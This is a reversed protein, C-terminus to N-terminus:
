MKTAGKAGYYGCSITELEKDDLATLRILNKTKGTNFDSVLKNRYFSSCDPVLLKELDPFHRQLREDFTDWDITPYGQAKWENEASLQTHSACFRRQERIRQKPQAEFRMLMEPDVEAKCLPCLAKRPPSPERDGILADAFRAFDEAYSSPTSVNSQASSLSSDEDDLFLHKSSATGMSSSSISDKSFSAASAGNVEKGGRPKRLRPTEIEMPMQFGAEPDESSRDNKPTKQKKSSSKRSKSKTSDPSRAESSASSRASSSPPRAYSLTTFKSYTRKRRKSIQSSGLSSFFFDDEDVVNDAMIRSITNGSTTNWTQSTGSDQSSPANRASRRLGQSQSAADRNGNTLKEELTKTDKAEGPNQPADSGSLDDESTGSLPEDETAPEEEAKRKSVGKAPEDVPRNNVTSLLHKGVNRSLRNSAYSSDPKWPRAM